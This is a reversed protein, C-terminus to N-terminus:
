SERNKELRKIVVDIDDALQIAEFYGREHLLRLGNLHMKQADKTKTMDLEDMGIVIVEGKLVKMLGTENRLAVDYMTGILISLIFKTLKAYTLM